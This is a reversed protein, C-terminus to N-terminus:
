APTQTAAAAAATPELHVDVAGPTCGLGAVQEGDYKQLSSRQEPGAQLQNGRKHLLSYGRRLLRAPGMGLRIDAGSSDAFVSRFPAGNLTTRGHLVM